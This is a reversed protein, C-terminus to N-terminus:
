EEEQCCSTARCIIIGDGSILKGVLAFLPVSLFYDTVWLGHRRFLCLLAGMKERSGDGYRLNLVSDASGGVLIVFGLESGQKQQILSLRLRFDGLGQYHGTSRNVVPDSPVVFATQIGQFGFGGTSRLTLGKPIISRKFSQDFLDVLMIAVPGDREHHFPKFFILSEGYRFAGNPVSDRLDAVRV